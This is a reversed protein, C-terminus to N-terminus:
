ICVHIGYYEGTNTKVDNITEHLCHKQSLPYKIAQKGIIPEDKNGTMVRSTQVLWYQEVM